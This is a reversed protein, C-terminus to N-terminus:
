DSLKVKQSVPTKCVPSPEKANRSGTCILDPMSVLASTLVVAAALLRATKVFLCIVCADGACDHDIISGFACLLILVTCVLAVLQRCRKECIMFM